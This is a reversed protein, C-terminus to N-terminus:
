TLYLMVGGKAPKIIIKGEQALQNTVKVPDDGDFYKKFAENFGSSVTHIGKNGEKRLSVIARKVFEEQTLKNRKDSRENRNDNERITITGKCYPYRSCGYFKGRRGTRLVMAYGCKPCVTSSSIKNTARKKTDKRGKCDKCIRGIGSILGKDKFEDIKRVEKCKPCEKM